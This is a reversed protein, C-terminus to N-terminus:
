LLLDPIEVGRLWDLKLRDALSKATDLSKTVAEQLPLSIFHRFIKPESLSLISGKPKAASVPHGIDYGNKRRGGQSAIARLIQM